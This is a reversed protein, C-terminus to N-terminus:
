GTLMRFNQRHKERIMAEGRLIAAKVSGYDERDRTELNLFAQKADGSLAPLLRAAWEEKPWRFAKAVQEFSVLFAGADDWPMTEKSSPPQPSEVTKLFTRWQSEWRKAISCGEQPEEKAQPPTVRSLSMGVEGCDMAEPSNNRGEPDMNPNFGTSDLLLHPAKRTSELAGGTSRPEEAEMKM